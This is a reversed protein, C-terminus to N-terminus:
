KQPKEAVTDRGKGKFMLGGSGKKKKPADSKDAAQKDGKSSDNRPQANHKPKKASQKPKGQKPSSDGKQEDAAKNPFTRTAPKPSQAPKKDSELDGKKTVSAQQAQPQAGFRLKSPGAPKKTTSDPKASNEQAAKSEQKEEQKPTVQNPKASDQKEQPKKDEVKSNALQEKSQAPPQQEPKPQEEEPTELVATRSRNMGRFGRMMNLRFGGGQDQQEEQQKSAQNATLPQSAGAPTTGGPQNPQSASTPMLHDAEKETEAREVSLIHEDVWEALGIEDAEVADYRVLHDRGDWESPVKADFWIARGKRLRGDGKDFWALGKEASMEHKLEEPSVLDEEDDSVTIGDRFSDSSRRNLEVNKTFERSNV